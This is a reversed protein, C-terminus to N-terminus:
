RIDMFNGLMEDVKIANLGKSEYILFKGKIGLFKGKHIGRTKQLKPMSRLPLELPYKNNFILDSANLDFRNKLSRYILEFKEEIVKVRTPYTLTRLIEEPEYAQKIRLINSIEKECARAAFRTPLTAIISYADAGQELIRIRIRNYSSMGIKPITNFFALYVHHPKSCISGPCKQGECEPEFICRLLPISKSVCRLCQPFDTVFSQIICPFYKERQFFGICKRPGTVSVNLIEPWWDFVKMYERDYYQTILRELELDWQFKVFHVNKDYSRCSLIQNDSRSNFVM